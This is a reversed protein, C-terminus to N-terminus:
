PRWQHQMALVVAMWIFLHRCHGFVPPHAHANQMTKNKYFAQMWTNSSSAGPPHQLWICSNRVDGFEGVWWQCKAYKIKNCKDRWSRNGNVNADINLMKAEIWAFVAAVAVRMAVTLCKQTGNMPTHRTPKTANNDHRHPMTKSWTNWGWSRGAACWARWLRSPLKRIQCFWGPPCLTHAHCPVNIQTKGQKKTKTKEPFFQTKEEPTRKRRHHM